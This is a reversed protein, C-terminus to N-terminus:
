GLGVLGEDALSALLTEGPVGNQLGVVEDFKNFFFPLDFLAFKATGKLYVLSDTPVAALDAKGNRLAELSSVPERVIEVRGAAGLRENVAARFAEAARAIPSPPPSNVQLRITVPEAAYVCSGISAWAFLFAIIRRLM